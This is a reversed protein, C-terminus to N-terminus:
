TSSSSSSPVEANHPVPASSTSPQVSTTTKTESSVKGTKTPRYDIRDIEAKPIAVQENKTAVVLNETNAEDFKALVPQKVGRKYVRLETGSKLEGVKTWADEAALAAIAVLLFLLIRKMTFNRTIITACPPGCLRFFRLRTGM